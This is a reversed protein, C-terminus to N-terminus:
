SIVERESFEDWRQYECFQQWTMKTVNKGDPGHLM